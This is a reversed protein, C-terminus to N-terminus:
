SQAEEGLWANVKEISGWATMPMDNYIHKVIAYMNAINLDDAKAYAEILNNSLVATLFSSPRIKDYRYHMLAQMTHEPIKQEKNREHAKIIEINDIM